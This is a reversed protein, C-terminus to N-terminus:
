GPHSRRFRAGARASQRRVPTPHDQLDHIWLATHLIIEAYVRMLMLFLVASALVGYVILRRGASRVVIGALLSSGQWFVAATLVPVISRGPRITTGSAIRLLSWLVVALIVTGGGSFLARLLPDPMAVFPAALRSALNLLATAYILILFLGSLAVARLRGRAPSVPLDFAARVVRHLDFFLQHVSWLFVGVTLVSLSGPSAALREMSATISRQATGPLLRFFQEELLAQVDPTLAISGAVSLLFLLPVTAFLASFSLGKALLPGHIQIYRRFIRGERRTVARV